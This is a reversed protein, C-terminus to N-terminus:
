NEGEIPAQFEGCFDTIHTDPWHAKYNDLLSKEEEACLTVPKPPYRRCAGQSDTLQDWFRCNYCTDKTLTM